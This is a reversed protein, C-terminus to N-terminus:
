LLDIVDAITQAFCTGSEQRLFRSFYYVALPRDYQGITQM